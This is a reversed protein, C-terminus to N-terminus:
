DTLDRVFASLNDQEGMEPTGLPAVGRLGQLGNCRRDGVNELPGDREGVVADAFSGRGRDLGHFRAVDQAQLVSATMRSLRALLRIEHRLQRSEPVNKDIVSERRRVTRM